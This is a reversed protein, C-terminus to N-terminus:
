GEGKGDELHHIVLHCHLVHGLLLDVVCAVGEPLLVAVQHLELVGVGEHLGGGEGAQQQEAPLVLQPAGDALPGPLPAPGLVPGEKGERQHQRLLPVAEELQQRGLRAGAQPDGLRGVHVPPHADPEDVLVGVQLPKTGVRVADTQLPVEGSGEEHGVLELEVKADVHENGAPVWYPDVDVLVAQHLEAGVGVAGVRLPNVVEARV